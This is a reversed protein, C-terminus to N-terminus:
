IELNKYSRQLFVKVMERRYKRTFIDNDVPRAMKLLRKALADLEENKDTELYVPKPDM